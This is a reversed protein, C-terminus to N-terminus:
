NTPPTVHIMAENWSAEFSGPSAFVISVVTVVRSLMYKKSSLKAKLENSSTWM